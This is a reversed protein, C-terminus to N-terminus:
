ASLIYPKKPTHRACVPQQPAQRASPADGSDHGKAPGITIAVDGNSSSAGGGLPGESPKRPASRSSAISGGAAVADSAFNVTSASGGEAGQGPNAPAGGMHEPEAGPVQNPAIVAGPAQASAAPADAARVSALFEGATNLDPESSVSASHPQQPRTLVVMHSRGTEFLQAGPM